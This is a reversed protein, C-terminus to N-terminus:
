AQASKIPANKKIYNVIVDLGTGPLFVKHVGMKELVPIDQKLIVGGLVILVDSVDVAKLAKLTGEVLQLYGPALISLGIVDVDEEVATRAIGEYTQNGGYIVEMGADRMARGVVHIGRWHADLGPKALLVRIRKRYAGNAEM